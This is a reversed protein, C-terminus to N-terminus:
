PRIPPPSRIVILIDPGAAARTGPKTCCKERCAGTPPPAERACQGRSCPCRSAPVAGRTVTVTVASLQPSPSAPVRSQRPRRDPGHARAALAPSGPSGALRGADDLRPIGTIRTGPGAPHGPIGPGPRSSDGAVLGPGGLAPLLSRLRQRRFRPGTIGCCARLKQDRFPGPGAVVRNFRAAPGGADHHFGGQLGRGPQPSRSATATGRRPRTARIMVPQRVGRPASSPGSPTNSKRPGAAARRRRPPPPPPPPPPAAAAQRKGLKCHHCGDARVTVASLGVLHTWM